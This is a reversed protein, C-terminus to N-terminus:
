SIVELFKEWYIKFILGIRSSKFFYIKDKTVLYMTNDKIIPTSMGDGVLIKEHVVGTNIDLFLVYGESNSSVIYNDFHLIGFNTFPLDASIWNAKGTDKNLCILKGLRTDGGKKDPYSVLYILKDKFVYPGQIGMGKKFYKKEWLIKNEAVDILGIMGNPRHYYLINKSLNDSIMDESLTATKHFELVNKKNSKPSMLLSAGFKPIVLEIVDNTSTQFLYRNKDQTFIVKDIDYPATQRYVGRGVKPNFVIFNSNKEFIAYQGFPLFEKDHAVVGKIKKNKIDISCYYHKGNILHKGSFVVYDSLIKDSFLLTKDISLPIKLLKNVKQTTTTLYKINGNISGFIMKDKSLAPSFNISLQEYPFIVNLDFDWIKKVEQGQISLVFISCLFICWFLGLQKKM